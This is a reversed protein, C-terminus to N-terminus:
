CRSVADTPGLLIAHPISRASPPRGEIPNLDQHRDEALVALLVDGVAAGVRRPEHPDRRATRWDMPQRGDHVAERPLGAMGHRLERHVPLHVIFLPNMGVITFFVAWRRVRWVDVLWYSFALAFLCWGGSLVVFSTTAIRKIVPTVPDLAYGAAIGLLGL